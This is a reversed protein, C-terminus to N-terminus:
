NHTHNARLVQDWGLALGKEMIKEVWVLAEIAGETHRNLDIQRTCCLGM